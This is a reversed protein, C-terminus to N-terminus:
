IVGNRIAYSVAHTRNRLGLRKILGYLVNKVTRESYGLVEAIDKLDTGDAVLRVVDIERVTLGSATLGRPQLVERNTRQLQDMLRGQLASPLDGHGESVARIADSFRQWAFDPRLIAARVGAELATNLDANWTGNVLVLFRTGLFTLRRLGEIAQNDANHLEVVVVDAAGPDGLRSLVFQQKQQIFSVLAHRTIPDAAHVAVSVAGM